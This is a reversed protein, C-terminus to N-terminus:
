FNRIGRLAIPEGLLERLVIAQKLSANTAFAALISKRSESRTANQEAHSKDWNYTQAEKHHAVEMQHQSKHVAAPKPMAKPMPEPAPARTAVPPPAPKRVPEAVVPAAARIVPPPPPATQPQPPPKPQIVRPEVQGQTLNRLFDELEKQPAAYPERPRPPPTTGGSDPPQWPKIQQKAARAKQIISIVIVALVILAQFPIAAVTTMMQIVAQM